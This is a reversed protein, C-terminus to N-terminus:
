FEMGVTLGYSADTGARAGLFIPGLVRRHIEATYIPKTFDLGKAGVGGALFWDPANKTTVSTSISAEDKTSNDTTTTETEKTGDPRELEKTVTVIKNQTIIRDQTVTKIVERPAFIRSVTAGICLCVIVIVILVKKSIEM